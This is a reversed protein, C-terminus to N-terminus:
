PFVFTSLSVAVSDGQASARIRGERRWYNRGQIEVEITQTEGPALDELQVLYQHDRISQADPMFTVNAFSSIYDQDFEVEVRDLGQTSRNTVNVVIVGNTIYRFRSPYRVELALTDSEQVATATTNGFVGAVGLVAILIFLAIGIWQFPYQQLRREITPPQPPQPPNEDDIQTAQKSM